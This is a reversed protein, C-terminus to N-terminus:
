EAPGFASQSFLFMSDSLFWKTFDYQLNSFIGFDSGKVAHYRNKM